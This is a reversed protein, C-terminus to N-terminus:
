DIEDVLEAAGFVGSKLGEKVGDGGGVVPRKELTSRGRPTIRSRPASEVCYECPYM